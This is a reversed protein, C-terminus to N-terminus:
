NLRSSSIAKTFNKGIRGLGKLEFTLFISNRDRLQIEEVNLLSFNDKWSYYDVDEWRRNMIGIELCCNSYKAGYSIDLSKSTNLDKKWRSFLKWSSTISSEFIGEIQSIKKQNDNWLFKDTLYQNRRFISRLEVRHAKVKNVIFALYANDIKNSKHNWELAGHYRFKNNDNISFEIITPSNKVKQHESNEFDNKLYFAQGLVIETHKNKKSTASYELGAVINNAYNKKDYGSYINGRLLRYYNLPLKQSDIWPTNFLKNEESYVYRILPSLSSFSSSTIKELFMKSELVAWFTTDRINDGKFNHNRYDSGFQIFNKSFMTEKEYKLSNSIFTRKIDQNPLALFSGDSLKFKDLLVKGTYSFEKINKAVKVELSPLSRYEELAYPTLNQFSNLGIIVKLNKNKWKISANRKLYSTKNQGYHDDGIDRFYYMDSVSSFNIKTSLNDLLDSRQFWQILWRDSSEGMEEKFERDNLIGSFMIKGSIHKTLYNFNSSLGAGRSTIIKPSLVLDYNPALNFYYPISIDLGKSGKSLSPALFGTMRKNGIATRLIPMYFVRYGKIKLSIGKILANNQDKLLTIKNATVHWFPDDINCNSYTIDSIVLNGSSNVSIEDANGTPGKKLLYKAESAQFLQESFNAIVKKGSIHVSSTEISVDGQLTLLSLVENFIATTAKIKLLNTEVRVDGSFILNGDLDSIIEKANISKIEIHERNKAILEYSFFIFSICLFSSLITNKNTLKFIM